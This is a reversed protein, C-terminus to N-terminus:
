LLRIMAQTTPAARVSLSEIRLDSPSAPVASTTQRLHIMPQAAALIALFIAALLAIIAPPPKRWARDPKQNEPTQRAWLELFPVRQTEFRGRLLWIVLAAWPALLILWIPSILLM